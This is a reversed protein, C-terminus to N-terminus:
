LDGFWQGMFVEHEKDTFRKAPAGPRGLRPVLDEPPPMVFNLWPSERIKRMADTVEKEWKAQDQRM